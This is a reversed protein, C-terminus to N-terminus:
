CCATARPLRATSRWRSAIVTQSPRSFIGSSRTSRLVLRRTGALLCLALGWVLRRVARMFTWGARIGRLNEGAVRSIEQVRSWARRAPVFLLDVRPIIRDAARPPLRCLSRSAFARGPEGRGWGRAGAKRLREDASSAAEMFTSLADGATV